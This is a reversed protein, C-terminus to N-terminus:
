RSQVAAVTTGGQPQRSNALVGHITKLVTAANFPKVIFAHAGLESAQSVVEPTSAATIIVVATSPQKERLSRLVALGDLRPMLVDLCVLDPRLAGIVELALAGNSAEGILALREDRIIIGTLARRTLENDDAVFIRAVDNATGGTGWRRTKHREREM